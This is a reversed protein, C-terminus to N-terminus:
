EVCGCEGPSTTHIATFAMVIAYEAGGEEGFVVAGLVFGIMDVCDPAVQGIVKAAIYELLVIPVTMSLM